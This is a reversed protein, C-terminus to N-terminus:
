FPWSPSPANDSCFGDDNSKQIAAPRLLDNKQPSLEVGEENNQETPISILDVHPEQQRTPSDEDVAEEVIDIMM